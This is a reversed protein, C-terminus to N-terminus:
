SKIETTLNLEIFKFINSLIGSPFNYNNNCPTIKIISNSNDVTGITALYKGRHATFLIYGNTTQIEDITYKSASISALTLYFLKENNVGFIRTCDQFSNNQVAVTTQNVAPKVGEEALVFGCLLISFIILFFKKM